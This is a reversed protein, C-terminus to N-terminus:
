KRLLKIFNRKAKHRTLLDALYAAHAAGQGLRQRVIRIRDILRSAEEYAQRNTLGVQREVLNAYANIAEAPQTSESAKALSELVRDRCRHVHVAEWAEALRRESMLVEVLLDARSPWRAPADREAAALGGQLVQVAKDAVSKAAAPDDRLSAKLRDYFDLSPRSEFAQWLLKEADGNRGVRRYLDAAFAVLRDDPMGEFLWLGEETWKLADAERGNALWLEAIQLYSYPSSLDKARIAIRADLDGEQEAFHELIAALRRRAGFEEDPATRKGALRPKIKHWAEEALRRYEARGPKGLVDSYTECDGAFWDWASDTERAFLDRALEVPDPKAARCAKLHIDCAKAITGGVYGDSDDVNGLAADMRTFFRDLLRLVIGAHGRDVLTEIRDLVDGIEQAWGPAERYEVYGPTRTAETLVKEFRAFIREEDTDGAAAGLELSRLLTPDREALGMITEVLADVGQARLHDRIAGLRNLAKGIEDPKAATAALATAVLHKCFGWESYAPCSCHGSLRGRVLSVESRYIESGLVDAVVRRPEIVLVEVHRDRHYAEGRTFVKEGAAQRLADVDFRPVDISENPAKRRVKKPL